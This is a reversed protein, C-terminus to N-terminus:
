PIEGMCSMLVQQLNSRGDVVDLDTDGGSGHLVRDPDCGVPKCPYLTEKRSLSLCLKGKQYFGENFLEEKGDTVSDTSCM